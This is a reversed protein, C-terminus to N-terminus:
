NGSGRSPLRNAFSRPPPLALAFGRHGPGYQAAPLPRGPRCFQEGLVAPNELAKGKGFIKDSDGVLPMDHQITRIQVDFKAEISKMAM